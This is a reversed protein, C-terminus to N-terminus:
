ISRPQRGITILWVISSFMGVMGSLIFRSSDPEGCAVINVVTCILFLLGSIRHLM